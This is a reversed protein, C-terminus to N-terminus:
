KKRRVIKTSDKLAKKVVDRRKGPHLQVKKRAKRVEHPEDIALEAEIPSYTMSIVSAIFMGGFIIAFTFAFSEMGTIKMLFMVSILFGFISTIMFSGSLPAVKFRLVM